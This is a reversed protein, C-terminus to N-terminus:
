SCFIRGLEGTKMDRLKPLPDDWYLKENERIIPSPSVKSTMSMRIKFSGVYIAKGLLTGVEM